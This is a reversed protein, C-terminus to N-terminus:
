QNNNVLNKKKQKYLDFKDAPLVQRYLSDRTGEIRQLRRGISDRGLGSAMAQKKQNHISLNIAELQNMENGNLNLSDKIKLAIKRAFRQGQDIQNNNQAHVSIFFLLLLM